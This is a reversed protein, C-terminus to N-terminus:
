LLAPLEEDIEEGGLVLPPHCRGLGPEVRPEAGHGRLFVSRRRRARHCAGQHLAVRLQSTKKDKKQVDGGCRLTGQDASPQSPRAGTM